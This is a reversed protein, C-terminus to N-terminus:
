RRDAVRLWLQGSRSEALVYRLGARLQFRARDAGADCALARPGDGAVTQSWEAGNRLAFRDLAQSRERRLACTVARGTENRISYTGEALAAAPTAAAAVSALVFTRKMM